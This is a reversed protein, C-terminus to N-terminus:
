TVGGRERQKKPNSKKEDNGLKMAPRGVHQAVVPQKRDSTYYVRRGVTM